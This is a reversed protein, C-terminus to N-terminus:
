EVDRALKELKRMMKREARLERRPRDHWKGQSKHAIVRPWDDTDPVDWFVTLFYSLNVPAEVIRDQFIIRVAEAESPAEDWFALFGVNTDEDRLSWAPGNGSGGEHWGDADRYCDVGYPYPNGPSGTDLLVYARDDRVESALVRCYREPIDGIAAREATEFGM